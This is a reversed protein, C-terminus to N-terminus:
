SRPSARSSSWSRSAIDADDFLVKVNAQYFLGKPKGIDDRLQNLDKQGLNQQVEAFQTSNNLTYSILKERNEDTLYPLIVNVEEPSLGAAGKERWKRSVDVISQRGWFGTGAFGLLGSKQQSLDQQAIALKAQAEAATAKNM